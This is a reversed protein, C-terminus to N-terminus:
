RMLPLSGLFVVLYSSLFFLKMAALWGGAVILSFKCLDVTVPM